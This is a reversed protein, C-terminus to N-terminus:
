FNITSYKILKIWVRTWVFFYIITTFVIYYADHGPIISIVHYVLCFLIIPNYIPISYLKLELSINQRSGTAMTALVMTVITNITTHGIWKSTTIM